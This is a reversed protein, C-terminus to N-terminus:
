LSVRVSGVIDILEDTATHSSDLHLLVGAVADQGIIFEAGEPADCFGRWGRVAVEHAEQQQGAGPPVLRGIHYAVLYQWISVPDDRGSAHLRLLLVDQRQRRGGPCDEIVYWFKSGVREGCGAATWDAIESVELVLKVGLHERRQALDSGLPSPIGVLALKLPPREMIQPAGRPRKHAAGM